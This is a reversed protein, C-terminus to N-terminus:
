HLIWPLLPGIILAVLTAVALLAGSVKQRRTFMAEDRQQHVRGTTARTSERQELATVRGALTEVASGIQRGMETVVAAEAKSDLKGDMLHVSKEIRELLERVTYVVYGDLNDRNDVGSMPERADTYDGTDHRFAVPASRM